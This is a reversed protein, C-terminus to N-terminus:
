FSWLVHLLLISLSFIKVTLKMKVEEFVKTTWTIKKAPNSNTANEESNTKVFRKNRNTKSSKRKRECSIEQGIKAKKALMKKCNHSFLQNFEGCDNVYINSIFYRVYKDFHRVSHPGTGMWSNNWWLRISIWFWQFETFIAIPFECWRFGFGALAIFIALNTDILM